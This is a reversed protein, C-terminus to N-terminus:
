SHKIGTINFFARNQGDMKHSFAIASIKIQKDEVVLDVRDGETSGKQNGGLLCLYEGKRPKQEVHSMYGDHGSDYQSM